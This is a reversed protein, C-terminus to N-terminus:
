QRFSIRRLYGAAENRVARWLPMLKLRRRVPMDYLLFLLFLLVAAYAAWGYIQKISIEMMGRMFEEIFGPGPSEASLAVMDVASGYRSINDSMLVSLGRSYIAAGVVGGVVMHLMNFVSLAQFFHRFSMIEELCVMFTASLVAYAFGRVAAPVYLFSIRIDTSLMFYYWLLYFIIGSIGAIILRLYNFRRIHMWWWSFLCGPVSAKRVQGAGDRCEGDARLPLM